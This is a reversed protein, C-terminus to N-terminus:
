QQQPIAVNPMNPINAKINKMSNIANKMMACQDTFTVNAPVSYDVSSDGPVCSTDTANKFQDEPSQVNAAPNNAQNAPLSAKLENICSLAMKTGTTQGEMWMYLTDGDFITNTTKGNISGVSKFNKGQVYVVSTITTDGAKTSYTCKMKTGLGMADKISNIANGAPSQQSQAQGAQGAPAPQSTKRTFFFVGAVVLVVVIVAVAITTKKM